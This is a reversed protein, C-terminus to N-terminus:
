KLSGVQPNLWYAGSKFLNLCADVVHPDYLKGRNARIEELAADIGLAPRYPRHSAMAEVVDAVGIIKAELRIADGTVANPYGSGDMREHHQLITDAVPWPFEVNKLIEYGVRVHDKIIDFEAATLKTPRTLIEAPVAIKGVDHVLGAIEIGERASESLGLELALAVCLGAVSRQHAATYPDRTELTQTIVGVTGRLAAWLQATRTEVLRELDTRYQENEKLLQANMDRQAKARAAKAVVAVLASKSVPKALYDFAEHRVAHAATEVNPEGTLLIVEIGEHHEHIHALLDLGSQGPMIIDSVVVDINSTELIAMAGPVDAATQVQHGASTLFLGLSYRMGLEDDVVLVRAM